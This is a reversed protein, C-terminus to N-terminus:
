PAKTAQEAPLIGVERLVKHCAAVVKEEVTEALPGPLGYYIMSDVPEYGGERLVRVSPIYCPVDNSFGAVVLNHQPYERKLRLAYDIVVEGAIAVLVLEDGLRVAQVPCPVSRVPEGRDYAELMLAARRQRYRNPDQLEKQFTERDHPPFDLM